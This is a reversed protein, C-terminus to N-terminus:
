QEFLGKVATWPKSGVRAPRSLRAASERVRTYISAESPLTSQQRRVRTSIKR